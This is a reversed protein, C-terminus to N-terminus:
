RTPNIPRQRRDHQRHGAAKLSDALYMPQTVVCALTTFSTVADSISTLPSSWMRRQFAPSPASLANQPVQPEASNPCCGSFGSNMLTRMPDKSLSGPTRGIPRRCTALAATQSGIGSSPRGRRGPGRSAYSWAAGVRPEENPRLWGGETTTQTRETSQSSAMRVGLEGSCSRGILRVETGVCSSRGWADM